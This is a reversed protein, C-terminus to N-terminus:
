SEKEIEKLLNLEENTLEKQDLLDKRKNLTRRLSEKLRWRRINEHHGSTLVDPVKM